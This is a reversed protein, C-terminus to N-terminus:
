RIFKAGITALLGLGGAILQPKNQAWYSPKDSAQAAAGSSAQGPTITIGPLTITGDKASGASVTVAPTIVNTPIAMTGPVTMTPATSTQAATPPTTSTQAVTTKVPTLVQTAKHEAWSRLADSLEQTWDGTTAGSSLGVSNAWAQFSAAELKDRATWTTAAAEVTSGYDSVGARSIGDTKSWAALTARAAAQAAIDGSPALVTQVTQIATQIPTMISPAVTTTNAQVPTAKAATTTTTKVWSAPLNIVDNVYIPFGYQKAAAARAKMLTPNVAKLETWRGKSGTLAFAISEGTDGKTVLWKGDSTLGAADRALMGARARVFAKAAGSMPVHRVGTQSQRATISPREFFFPRSSTVRTLTPRVNNMTTGKALQEPTTGTLSKFAAAAGGGPVAAAAKALLQKPAQALVKAASVGSLAQEATKRAASDPIQALATRVAGSAAGKLPNQGRAAANIAANLTERSVPPAMAVASAVVEKAAAKLVNQGKIGASGIAVVSKALQKGYEGGPMADLAANSAGQKIAGFVNKGSAIDRAATVANAAINVYPVATKVANVAAKAMNEGSMGAGAVKLGAGVATGVGPVYSVVSGAVKAVSGIASGIGGLVGKSVTGMNTGYTKSLRDLDAQTPARLKKIQQLEANAAQLKRAGISFDVTSSQSGIHGSTLSSFMQCESFALIRAGMHDARFPLADPTIVYKCAFPCRTLTGLALHLM